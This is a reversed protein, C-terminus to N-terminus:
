FFPPPPEWGPPPWPALGRFLAERAMRSAVGIDTSIGNSGLLRPRAPLPSRYEDRFPRAPDAAPYDYFGYGVSARDVEVHGTREFYGRRWYLDTLM